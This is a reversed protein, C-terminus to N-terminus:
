FLSQPWLLISSHNSGSPPNLVNHIVSFQM